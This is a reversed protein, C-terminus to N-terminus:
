TPAERSTTSLTPTPTSRTTTATTTSCLSILSSTRAKPTAENAPASGSFSVPKPHVANKGRNLFTVYEAIGDKFLFAEKRNTRFDELVIEIGPNLFALERLRKALLDYKFDRTTLFIEPDPLWSIKTGTKKTKGIISMKQTTKGRSFAMHHVMGERSVEAEFWESVANVCKAGVGHLGGSVQYAGKGFKGGAHLNTMVLELAPMKHKPHMDVPIGRGDDEVSISGETHLTVKITSCYGALAEDISNDVIEFVCHHLGRENTDGIYMDPRKRVGELGELKEIKSADYSEPVDPKNPM